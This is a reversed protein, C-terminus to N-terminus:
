LMLWPSFFYLLFTKLSESWNMCNDNSFNFYCVKLLNYSQKDLLHRSAIEPVIYWGTFPCAGFQQGACELLRDSIMPLTHYQLNLKDVSPYNPHKIKVRLVIEEPIEFIRPKQDIGSMVLPLLDWMGNKGKWGLSQCFQFCIILRM